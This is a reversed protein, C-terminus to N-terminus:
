KGIGEEEKKGLRFPLRKAEEEIQTFVEIPYKYIHLYLGFTTLSSGVSGFVLDMMTDQLSE